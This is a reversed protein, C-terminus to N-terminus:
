TQSPGSRSLIRANQEREVLNDIVKGNGDKKEARKISANEAAAIQRNLEEFLRNVMDDMWGTPIDKADIGIWHNPHTRAFARRETEPDTEM